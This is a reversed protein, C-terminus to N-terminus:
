LLGAGSEGLSFHTDDNADDWMADEVELDLMEEKLPGLTSAELPGGLPPEALEELDNAKVLSRMIERRHFKAFTKVVHVLALQERFLRGLM